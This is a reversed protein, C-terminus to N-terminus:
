KEDRGKRYKNWLGQYYPSIAPRVQPKNQPIKKGQPNLSCRAEVCDHIRLRNELYKRLKEEKDFKRM